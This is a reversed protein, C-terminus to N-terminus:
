GFFARIEGVVFAAQEDTLEPFLPLALAERSAQESVPLSEANRAAYASQKHIPAPYYIATGVGAASLRNRLDDRRETRVVFAHCADLSNEPLPPALRLPTQALERRYFDALRGRAKTWGALRRLKIRLFAAQLADLRSNYGVAVHDYAHGPRRGCHRLISCDDYMKQDEMTLAGGDGLAGINKTPYFSFAGADGFSGVPKGRWLALHSQACDEIVRLGRASAAKMLADMDAPRGFLHVVIVAKTKPTIKRDLDAPDMLLTEPDSDIFVPVAGRVSVCTATAIFSFSPVAVEDGPGVGCAALALELAATGSAVGLCRRAGHAAAFEKEFAAVEDGLIFQNSSIIREAAQILESKLQATQESLDLFPVKLAAAM